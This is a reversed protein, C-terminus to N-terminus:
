LKIYGVNSIGQYSSITDLTKKDVKNDINIITIAIEGKGRRGLSLGAININKEALLKSVLSLMGPKDENTYFLLYGEPNVEIRYNNIGVIRIEKNGFVTGDFKRIEDKSHFTISLLNKYDINSSSKIENIIIGNEKALLPANILNVTEELKNNLYGKLVSISLLLSFKHLTEGCVNIDIQELKNKSLQSYINGIKEGLKVFPYIDQNNIAEIGLGNVAGKIEKGNFYDAIQNAIQVAVKEQAEQTSAGLHPTTVVNPHTLLPDSFNPPETRFVDIAAGSVQGSILCKLLASDEILEGRACNIIKVGKKCKALNKKSIINKTEDTLPVHISIIDSKKFLNDLSVLKVGFKIASDESMLPDFCIVEMGFSISRLAVEKGIKGFGIIGLIKDNLEAGQYKGREWKGSLMSANAQPLHRCLSLMLAMTHEAASITNGGPTNMVLIGKRTASNLDINDCGTGARGIISLNKALELLSNNVQTRSRVILGNFEGIGKKIEEATINPLYTVEIGKKELIEKCKVDISDSILIKNM